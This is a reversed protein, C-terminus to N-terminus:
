IDSRSTYFEFLVKGDDQIEPVILGAGTHVTFSCSWVIFENVYPYVCMCM